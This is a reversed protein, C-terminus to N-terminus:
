SCSSKTDSPGLNPGPEENAMETVEKSVQTKDVCIPHNCLGGSLCPLAKISLHVASSKACYRPCLSDAYINTPIM